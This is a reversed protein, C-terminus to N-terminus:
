GLHVCHLDELAANMSKLTQKKVPLNSIRRFRRSSRLLRPLGTCEFSNTYARAPAVIIDRNNDNISEVKNLQKAKISEIKDWNRHAIM